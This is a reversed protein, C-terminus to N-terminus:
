HRLVEVPVDGVDTSLAVESTGDASGDDIVLIESSFRCQALHRAMQQLTDGVRAAENFAPIVVSLYPTAPDM